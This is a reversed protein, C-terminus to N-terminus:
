GAVGIELAVAVSPGSAVGVAVVVRVAVNVVRGADVGVRVL